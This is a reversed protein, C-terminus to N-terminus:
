GVKPTVPLVAGLELLRAESLEFFDRVVFEAGSQLLMDARGIASLGICRMGASKAAKVGGPADEIVLLKDPSIKMRQAVLSYVAPDPKGAVVDAATVVASFQADLGFRRLTGWTRSPGASTAVGMELGLTELTALFERLGPTLKVDKFHEESFRDKLRGYEAIESDSLDGLFHRLIEERRRGELIFDLDNEPVDRGVSALFKRWAVRHVPHSDILVGDMDFVIGEIM